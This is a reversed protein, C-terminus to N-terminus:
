GLRREPETKYCFKAVGNDSVNKMKYNLKYYYNLIYFLFYSSFLLYISFDFFYSCKM